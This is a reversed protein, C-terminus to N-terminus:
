WKLLNINFVPGETCVCLHGKITNEVCCLCSGIGCAMHNELSVECPIDKEKAQRAVAKMMPEPGCSYIMSYEQKNATLFTSHQTVFGKEGMSQDETTVFVNGYKKFNELEIINNESRGGLIFDVQNNKATLEKALQLLPAVGVGGGILLVRSNNTLSFGFGLPYLLNVVEGIRRESLTKTGEGVIQILLSLTNESYDVEYISIPRRLFTKPSHEVLVQVFQGPHCKQLGIESKLKLVYYSDNVKRNELITFDESRMKAKDAKEM